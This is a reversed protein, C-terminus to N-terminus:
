CRCPVFFSSCQYFVIIFLIYHTVPNHPHVNCCVCVFVYTSDFPLRVTLHLQGRGCIEYTDSNGTESVKLAVNRDLEKFLRDSHHYVFHFMLFPVNLNEYLVIM